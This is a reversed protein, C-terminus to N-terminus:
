RLQTHPTALVVRGRDMVQSDSRWVPGAVADVPAVRAVVDRGHGSDVLLGLLILLGLSFSLDWPCM